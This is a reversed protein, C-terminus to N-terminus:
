WKAKDKLLDKRLCGKCLYDSVAKREKRDAKPLYCDCRICYKKNDLHPDIQKARAIVAEAWTRWAKLLDVEM